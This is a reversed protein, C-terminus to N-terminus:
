GDEYLDLDFDRRLMELESRYLRRLFVEDETDMADVGVTQKSFVVERPPYDQFRDVELFDCVKDLTEHHHRRLDSNRLLLIQHSPFSSRLRELQELYFGREVYSFVRHCGVIETGHLVRRRGERIAKGFCLTEAKRSIEMRWHSFARQIPNRLIVIIKIGVNYDRIRSVSPPWYTYIPTSDGLLKDGFCEYQSHLLKLPPRSWDLSEDDFFHLEKQKGFQIQPHKKMFSWLATTGGKQVGAILFDLKRERSQNKLVSFIM